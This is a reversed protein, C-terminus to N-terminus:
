GLNYSFQGLSVRLAMKMCYLPCKIGYKQEAELQTPGMSTEHKELKKIHPFTAQMSRGYICLVFLHSVAQCNDVGMLTKCWVKQEMDWHIVKNDQQDQLCLSM